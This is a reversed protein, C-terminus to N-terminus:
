ESTQCSRQSTRSKTAPSATPGEVEAKPGASCRNAQIASHWYVLNLQRDEVSLADLLLIRIAENPRDQLRKQM